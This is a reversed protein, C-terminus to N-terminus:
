VLRLAESGNEFHISGGLHSALHQAFPLDKLNFSIYITASSDSAVLPVYISGDAEILGALYPGLQGALSAASLGILGLGSHGSLIAYDLAVSSDFADIVFHPNVLLAGFASAQACHLGHTM